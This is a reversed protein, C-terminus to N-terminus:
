VRFGRIAKSILAYSSNTGIRNSDYKYSYDLLYQSTIDVYEDHAVNPFKLLQQVVEEEIDKDISEDPLYINGSEFYPAVLKFRSEKSAGKPDFGIFGGIQQNLLEITANGNAKSEILKKRMAPFEACFLKILNITDQFGCKKNFRKLMYHNGGLRGWVVCCNPDNDKKTGGFSLDCSLVIEDFVDPINRKNYFKINERRIINGGEVFPKGQYLANWVRSGANIRTREAWEASMGLEPCLVEGIKRHLLKDEGKEWVTPFNVVIFGQKKALRGILDDEHWRTHIVIIGGGLKRLRTEISDWYVREVRDRIDQSEAEEGNKFPDDVIILAAPNSTLGGLIGTSFIQGEHKKLQFLTKNDQSDSIEIGFIDKGFERVKQRNKDGFKEAIDANYATIIVSLDPNNGIFWSPLTETLTKSKGVQPPTSLLIRVQEGREIREVVNQCIACLTKHFKTMIYNNGYIYQVYSAYNERLKKKKIEEQFAIKDVESLNNYYEVANLKQEVEHEQPLISKDEKYAKAKKDKKILESRDVM